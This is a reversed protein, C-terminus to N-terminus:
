VNMKSLLTMLYDGWKLHREVISMKRQSQKLKRNPTIGGIRMSPRESQYDEANGIKVPNQVSASTQPPSLPPSPSIRVRPVNGYVCKGPTSRLGSPCTM